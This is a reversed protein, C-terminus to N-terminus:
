DFNELTTLQPVRASKLRRTFLRDRRRAFEDDVLLTLFDTYALQNAIRRRTGPWCRRRNASRTCACWTTMGHAHVQAGVVTHPVSCFAGVVEIHGDPHVTRTGIQFL